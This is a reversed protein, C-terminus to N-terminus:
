LPKLTWPIETIVLVSSFLAREHLYSLTCHHGSIFEVSITSQEEQVPMYIVNTQSHQQYLVHLQKVRKQISIVYRSCRYCSIGTVIM